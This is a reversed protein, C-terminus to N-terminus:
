RSQLESTHEESRTHIGVYPYCARVHGPPVEGAVFRQMAARLHAIQQDYILRVQALASEPNAHRTPPILPPMFAM